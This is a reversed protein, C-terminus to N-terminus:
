LTKYCLHFYQQEALTLGFTGSKFIVLNCSAFLHSKFAGVVVLPQWNVGVRGVRELGDHDGLYGMFVQLLGMDLLLM